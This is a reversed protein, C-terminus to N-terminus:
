IISKKIISKVIKTAQAGKKKWENVREIDIKFTNKSDQPNYTGLSEIYEGDRKKRSDMVVIRYSRHKKKGTQFLRIKVM